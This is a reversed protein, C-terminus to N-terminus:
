YDLYEKECGFFTCYAGPGLLDECYADSSCPSGWSTCSVVPACSSGNWECTWDCWIAGGCLQDCQNLAQGTCTWSGWGGGPQPEEAPCGGDTYAAPAALLVVAVLALMTLIRNLSM